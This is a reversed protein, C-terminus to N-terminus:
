AICGRYVLDMDVSVGLATAVLLIINMYVLTIHLNQAFTPSAFSHTSGSDFLCRALSGSISIMGEMVSESANADQQTLAFSRTSVRPRQM